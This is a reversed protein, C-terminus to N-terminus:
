FRTAPGKGTRARGPHRRITFIIESIAVETKDGRQEKQDQLRVWWGQFWDPTENIRTIGEKKGKGTQTRLRTRSQPRKSQLRDREKAWLSKWALISSRIAVVEELPHKSGPISGLDGSDGANAPPNKKKVVLGDSDPLVSCAPETHSATADAQRKGKLLSGLAWGVGLQRGRAPPLGQWNHIYNWWKAPAQGKRSYRAGLIFIFVKEAKLFVAMWREM